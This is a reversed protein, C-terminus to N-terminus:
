YLSFQVTGNIFIKKKLRMKGCQSIVTEKFDQSLRAFLHDQGSYLQHGTTSNYEYSKIADLFYIEEHFYLM